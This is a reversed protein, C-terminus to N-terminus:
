KPSKKLLETMDKTFVLMGLYNDSKDRVASYSQYMERGKSETWSEIISRKDSTLENLVRNVEPVNEQQHCDQVKRGIDEAKRPFIKKESQDVKNYYIVTDNNDIFTLDGPLADLIAEITPKAIKMLM